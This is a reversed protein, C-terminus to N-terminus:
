AAAEKGKSGKGNAAQTSRFARARRAIEKGIKEVVGIVLANGMCFARQGDSMGTATWDTPFGNARELERPTLRRYRGDEIRIIHKFRSPSSGGEATLITRAPRDLPDPFPLAGETYFYKAGSAKHIREEHKPGKLYKWKAVQGEAVFFSPDVDAASEIIDRLFHKKGTFDAAVDFTWVKNNRMFGANRFQSVVQGHGFKASLKPIDKDLELKWDDSFLDGETRECPLAQALIGSATIRDSADTEGKSRETAVIFVRRRRQPFGYDAANIVRWEVEYGLANLCALIIAFDRGRQNGPSKLLRDVNELLIFKVPDKAKKKLELFRYIQWWLVGKKGVLGAAQNLPKAVSYDQCPFGGVLMDIHPIEGTGDEYRDLAKAIDDNVHGEVGFHHVYCDSAFQNKRGPEWQNSWKVKWSGGKVDKLGLRFGGVGAFLEAATLTNTSPVVVQERVVKKKTKPRAYGPKTRTPRTSKKKSRLSAAKTKSRAPRVVKKKARSTEAKTKPRRATKKV